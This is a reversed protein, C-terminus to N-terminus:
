SLKIFVYKYYVKILLGKCLTYTSSRLHLLYVSYVSVGAADMIHYTILTSHVLHVWNLLILLDM